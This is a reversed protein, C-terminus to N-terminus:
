YAGKDAVADTYNLENLLSILLSSAGFRFHNRNVWTDGMVDRAMQLYQGATEADKM